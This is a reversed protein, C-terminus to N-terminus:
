EECHEHWLKVDGPYLQHVLSCTKTQDRRLLGRHDGINTHPVAKIQCEPGLSSMVKKKLDDALTPLCLVVTKNNVYADQQCFIRGRPNSERGYGMVLLIQRLESDRLLADAFTMPDRLVGRGM